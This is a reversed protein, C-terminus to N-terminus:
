FFTVVTAVLIVLILSPWYAIDPLLNNRFAIWRPPHESNLLISNFAVLGIAGNLVFPVVELYSFQQGAVISRIQNQELLTTFLLGTSAGFVGATNLAGFRERRNGDSTTLILVGHLLVAIALFLAVHDFFPGWFDRKLGVSFYLEPFEGRAQPEDYGFTTQYHSTGFSFITFRPDWAGYVFEPDLGALALPDMTRYAAFDPVLVVGRDFDRHWLRLWVDQEDFPYRRYDFAQRLTASMYWGIVETGDVETTRYAEDLQFAEEVAEPLVYGRAVSAPVEPGYRQWVFGTVQVNNANLFEISQLLVGTPIRIPATPAEAPPDRQPNALFADVEATSLIPVGIQPTPDIRVVVLTWTGALSLFLIIAWAAATMALRRTTGREPRFVTVMLALLAPLLVLGIRVMAPGNRTPDWPNDDADTAAAHGVALMTAGTIGAVVVAISLPRVSRPWRPGVDRPSPASPEPARDDAASPVLLAEDPEGAEDKGNTREEATVRGSM